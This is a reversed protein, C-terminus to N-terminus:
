TYFPIIVRGVEVLGHPSIFDAKNIIKKLQVTRLVM